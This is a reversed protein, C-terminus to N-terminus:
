AESSEPYGTYIEIVTIAVPFELIQGLSEPFSATDRLESDGASRM